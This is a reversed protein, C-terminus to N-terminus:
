GTLGVAAIMTDQVIGVAVHCDVSVRAGIRARLRAVEQLHEEGIPLREVPGALSRFLLLQDGPDPGAAPRFANPDLRDLGIDLRRQGFQFPSHGFRPFQKRPPAGFPDGRHDISPFEVAVDAASGTVLRELPTTGIRIM